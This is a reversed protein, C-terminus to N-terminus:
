EKVVEVWGKWSAGSTNVIHYYYTGAAADAGWGDTYNSNEYVKRGWRNFIEIKVSETSVFPRFTDNKGDSNPTIVNPLAFGRVPVALVITEECNAPGYIATLRVQFPTPSVTTYTHTPNIDTSTASNDGFDWRYSTAGVSTNTFTVPENIINPSSVTAALTPRTAVNVQVSDRGQCGYQNEVVVRYRVSASPQVTVSQGTLIPQGPATWTYSANPGASPVTLVASSGPCIDRSPGASVVVRDLVHVTVTDTESCSGANAPTSATVTYQVTAAPTITISAGTLTPQGPATWTYIVNAAAANLNSAELTTSSGLCVLARSAPTVQPQPVAYVVVTDVTTRSQGCGNTNSVTLRVPYRGPATYTATANNVQTSTQGNGFEWVVGTGVVAPRNFFFQAPACQAAQRTTAAATFAPVFSANLPENRVQVTVTDTASCGGAGGPTAVTV